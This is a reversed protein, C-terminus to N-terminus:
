DDTAAGSEIHNERYERWTSLVVRDVVYGLSTFGVYALIVGGLAYLAYTQTQGDAQSVYYLPAVLVGVVVTSALGIATYYLSESFTQLKEHVWQIRTVSSGVFLAMVIALLVVVVVASLGFASNVNGQLSSSANSLNASELVVGYM